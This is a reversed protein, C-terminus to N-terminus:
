RSAGVVDGNNLDTSELAPKTQDIVAYVREVIQKRESDSPFAKAFKVRDCEALISGVRPSAASPIGAQDLAPRVEDTTQELLDVRYRGGLYRKLIWALQAYFRELEGQEALRESLLNQLEAFAWEHPPTRAFPDDVMPVAALRAAYRRHLWWAALAILAILAVISLAILAPTWNPELSAPQKLDAIELEEEGSAEDLVSIMEVTLPLSEWGPQESSIAAIQLAPFEVPGTSYAAVTAIWVWSSYDGEPEGVEWQQHLVNFEGLETGLPQMAPEREPGGVLRWRVEIADGVNAELLSLSLEGTLDSDQAHVSSPILLLFGVTLAVAVGRWWPSHQSTAMM